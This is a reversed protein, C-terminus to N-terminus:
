PIAGGITYTITVSTGQPQPTDETMGAPVVTSFSNDGIYPDEYTLTVTQTHGYQDKFEYIVTGQCGTAAGEAGVAYFIAAASKPDITTNKNYYNGWEVNVSQYYLTYQTNNQLTATVNEAESM